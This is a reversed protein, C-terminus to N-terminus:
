IYFIDLKIRFVTLVFYKICEKLTGIRAKESYSPIHFLLMPGEILSVKKLRKFHM